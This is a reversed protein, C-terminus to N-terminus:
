KSSLNMEGYSWAEGYLKVYFKNDVIKIKEGNLLFETYDEWANDIAIIKDIGTLASNPLKEEISDKFRNKMLNITMAQALKDARNEQYSSWTEFGYERVVEDQIKLAENYSKFTSEDNAANRKSQEDSEELVQLARQQSVEYGQKLAVQYLVEERLLINFAENETLPLIASRERAEIYRKQEKSLDEEKMNLTQLLDDKPAIIDSQNQQYLKELIKIAINREAIENKIQEETIVKDGIVAITDMLFKESSCGILIGLGLFVVIAIFISRISM